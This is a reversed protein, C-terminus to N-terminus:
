LRYRGRRAGDGCHDGLQFGLIRADALTQRVFLALKPPKDVHVHVFLIDAEEIALVGYEVVAVGYRDHGRDCAALRQPVLNRALMAGLGAMPANAAFRGDKVPPLIATM